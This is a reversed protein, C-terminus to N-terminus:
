GTAPNSSLQVLNIIERRKGARIFFFVWYTLSTSSPTPTTNGVSVPRRRQEHGGVDAWDAGRRVDLQLSVVLGVVGLLHEGLLM